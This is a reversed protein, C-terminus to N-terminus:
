FVKSRTWSVAVFTATRGDDGNGAGDAAGPGDVGCVGLGIGVNAAM